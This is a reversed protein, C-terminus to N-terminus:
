CTDDTVYIMIMKQYFYQQFGLLWSEPSKLLRILTRDRTSKNGPVQVDFHMEKGFEYMLKRPQSNALDVTYDKKTIMKLVLLFCFNGQLEFKKGTDRFTLM